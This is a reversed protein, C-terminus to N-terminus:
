QMLLNQQWAQQTSEHKFPPSIKIPFDQLYSLTKQVMPQMQQLPQHTVQAMHNPLQQFMTPQMMQPMFQKQVQQQMPM